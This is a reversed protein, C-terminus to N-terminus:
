KGDLDPCVLCYTAHELPPLFRICEMLIGYSFHSSRLPPADSRHASADLHHVRSRSSVVVHELWQTQRDQLCFECRRPDYSYKEFFFFSLSCRPLSFHVDEGVTSALKKEGHRRKTSVGLVPCRSTRVGSQLFCM